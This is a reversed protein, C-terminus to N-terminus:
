VRNMYCESIKCARNLEKILQNDEPDIYLLGEDIQQYKWGVIPDIPSPSILKAFPIRSGQSIYVKAGQSDIVEAMCYEMTSPLEPIHTQFLTVGIPEGSRFVYKVGSSRTVYQPFLEPNNLGLGYAQLPYLYKELSGRDDLYDEYPVLEGRNRAGFLVNEGNNVVHGICGTPFLVEMENYVDSHDKFRNYKTIPPYSFLGRKDLESTYYLTASEIPVNAIEQQFIINLCPIYDELFDGIKDRLCLQRIHIVLYDQLLYRTTKLGVFGHNLWMYDVDPPIYKDLDIIVFCSLIGRLTSDQGQYIGRDSFAM